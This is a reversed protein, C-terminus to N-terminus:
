VKTTTSKSTDVPLDIKVKFQTPQLNFMSTGFSPLIMPPKDEGAENKM